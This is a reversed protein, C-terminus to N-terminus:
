SILLPNNDHQEVFDHEIELRECPKTLVTPAKLVPRVGKSEAIVMAVTCVIM